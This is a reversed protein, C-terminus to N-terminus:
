GSALGWLPLPRADAILGLRISSTEGSGGPFGKPLGQKLSTTIGLHFGQFALVDQCEAEHREGQEDAGAVDDEWGYDAQLGAGM